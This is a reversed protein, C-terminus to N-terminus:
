PAAEIATVTFVGNHDEAHFKVKDGVKIGNLLGSPQVRFVMTMPPMDLNVLPGHRLTIKANETDIKRVVGESMASAQAAPPTVPEAHLPTALALAALLPILRKM